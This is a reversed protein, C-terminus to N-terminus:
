TNKENYNLFVTKITKRGIYIHFRFDSQLKFISYWCQLVNAESPPTTLRVLRLKIQALVEFSRAVFLILIDPHGDQNAIFTLIRYKRLLPVAKTLQLAWGISNSLDGIWQPAGKSPPPLLLGTLSNGDGETQLFTSSRTAATFDGPHPPTDKSVLM